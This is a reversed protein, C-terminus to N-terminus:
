FLWGPQSHLTAHYLNTQQSTPMPCCACACHLYGKIYKSQALVVLNLHVYSEFIGEYDKLLGQEPGYSGPPLPLVYGCKQTIM